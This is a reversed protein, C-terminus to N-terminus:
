NKIFKKTLVGNKTEVNIFYIGNEFESINVIENQSIETRQLVEKGGINTINMKILENPDFDGIEINLFDKTPNPYIRVKNNKIISKVSTNSDKICRVSLGAPKSGMYRGAEAVDYGLGISWAGGYVYEEANLWWHAYTNISAYTGDPFRAGGPLGSFGSSNDARTNPTSWHDYGSEKMKGGAYEEGGM